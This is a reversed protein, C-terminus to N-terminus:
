DEMVVSSIYKKIENIKDNNKNIINFLNQNRFEIKEIEKHLDKICIRNYKKFRLAHLIYEPDNIDILDLIRDSDTTGFKHLINNM